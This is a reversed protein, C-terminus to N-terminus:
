QSLQAERITWLVIGACVAVNLSHKTGFQPVEIALDLLPLIGETLGDVENGVIIMLPQESNIEYQHLPISQDTQEVGIILSGNTKAESVLSMIDEEYHWDVSKTAGIATKSIEKHPPKATIGCLVINRIAMADATRFISGVNHASRINDLVITVSLKEAEQYDEISARGLESLKLKRM